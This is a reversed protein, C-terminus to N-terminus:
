DSQLLQRRLWRLDERFAEVVRRLRRRRLRGLGIVTCLVMAIGTSAFVAAAAEWPQLVLSLLLVATVVAMGLALAGLLAAAALFLIGGLFDRVSARAEAGALLAYTQLLAAINGALRRLITPTPEHGAENVGTVNGSRRRPGEEM